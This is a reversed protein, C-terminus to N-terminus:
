SSIAALADSASLTHPLGTEETDNLYGSPGTRMLRRVEARERSDSKATPGRHVRGDELRIWGSVVLWPLSKLV